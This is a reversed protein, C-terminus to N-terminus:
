TEPRLNHTEVPPDIRRDVFRELPPVITNQNEGDPVELNLVIMAEGPSPRLRRAGGGSWPSISRTHRRRLLAGALRSGQRDVERPPGRLLVAAPEGLHGEMLQQWRHSETGPVSLTTPMLRQEVGRGVAALVAVALTWGVLM